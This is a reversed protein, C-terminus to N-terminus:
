RILQQVALSDVGPQDLLLVMAAVRAEITEPAGVRWQNTDSTWHYLGVKAYDAPNEYRYGVPGVYDAVLAGNVWAKVYGSGGASPDVRAKIVFDYWSDPQWEQDTYIVVQTTSELTLTANDNYLVILRLRNGNITASLHPSLGPVPSDEHWQWIIRRTDADWASAKIRVAFWIDQGQPIVQSPEAFYRESRQALAGATPPDNKWVRFLFAHGFPGLSADSVIGHKLEDMGGPGPGFVGAGVESAAINQGMVQVRGSSVLSAEDARLGVM